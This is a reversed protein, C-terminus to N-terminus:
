LWNGMLFFPAWYFPHRYDGPVLRGGVTREGSPATPKNTGRMLQLQARRLAEIKTLNPASQRFRYFERMLLGTSADAVPWLSAVVAKAGKRQALVGFGEVESGDSTKVDGLGTSCASLTLLDVGAFITDAAKLDALTLQSGDGLLLFSQTEDGPRFQFHSAVHVVPYGIALERQFAARTFQADLLRRGDLVGREGPNERVISRLEESVGPLPDFGARAETVGFAVGKWRAQPLEKLRANSAPTFVAMRYKEILYQKGDHLATVPVYRLAGDLSWMLTEARAQKLDGALAEPILIRYMEQALPLPNSRPDEIAERFAAIKQNLDESEIKTEYARQVRPTVLMAVYRDPTVLTYIAVSGHKLEGLDTKLAETDRLNITLPARDAKAAFYQKFGDLFQQFARNGAELDKQLDAFQRQIDTSGALAPQKKIRDQLTQMEAGKGVLTESATRYRSAWESEESTLDARGSPGAARENRRIYDFFEQEKLLNLVQQAELLRGRSILLNALTRYTEKRHDVFARRSADSLGRNDSRISQVVNVAQKGYFIALYPQRDAQHAQMLGFLADHENRRNKVQRAIVLAEEGSSIARQSQRLSLYALGLNNTAEGETARDKIERAIALAQNYFEIAKAADKLRLYATGMDNLTWSEVARNKVQREITLAQEYYGIAIQYRGLGSYANGMENLGMGEGVRIKLDRAIQIGQQYYRIATEYQGLLRYTYGILGLEVGETFRDKSARALALSQEHYKISKEYEGITAYLLGLNGIVASEGNRNKLERSIVLAQEYFEIARDPKGFEKYEDGLGDLVTSEISRNGIERSIALAQEYYEVATDHHSLAFHAQALAALASAEGTRDAEALRFSVVQELNSVAQGPKGTVTYARASIELASAELSDSHLERAIALTQDSYEIAKPFNDRNAFSRALSVLARGEGARDAVARWLDLAKVYDDGALNWSSKQSHLDGAARFALAQRRVMGLRGFVGATEEMAGASDPANTALLQRFRVDAGVAERDRTDAPRHAALRILYDGSRGERATRVEVGYSGDRDALHILLETGGIGLYNVDQIQHGDPATLRLAVDVGKQVATIEIYDGTKLDITFSDTRGAEIRGQVPKDIELRMQPWAISMSFVFNLGIWARRVEAIMIDRCNFSSPAGVDFPSVAFPGPM